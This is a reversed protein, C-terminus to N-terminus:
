KLVQGTKYHWLIMDLEACSMDLNEAIGRFTYELNLYTEKNLSAPKTSVLNCEVLLNLIHRDIIAVDFFGTNRLFHSSEKYGLGKINEVLWQRAASGSKKELAIITKKLDKVQRAALIFRAKTNHFRHKNRRICETLEPLTHNAFGIAGLEEQISLATSAKSNATLICFCLESFWESEDKDIFSTFELLRRDIQIRVSKKTEKAISAFDTMLDLFVSTYIFDHSFFIM